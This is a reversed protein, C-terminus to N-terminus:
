RGPYQAHRHFFAQFRDEIRRQIQQTRRAAKYTEKEAESAHGQRMLADVRAATNREAQVRQKARKLDDIEAYAENIFAQRSHADDQDLKAAFAARDPEMAMPKPPRLVAQPAQRKIMYSDRGAQSPQIGPENMVRYAKDYLDNQRRLDPNEHTYSLRSRRYEQRSTDSSM